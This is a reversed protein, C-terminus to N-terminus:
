ATHQGAVQELRRGIDAQKTDLKGFWDTITNEMEAMRQLLENTSRPVAQSQVEKYVCGFHKEKCRTCSPQGKDCKAKHARCHDCAQLLQM